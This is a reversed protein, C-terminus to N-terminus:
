GICALFEFDVLTINSYDAVVGEFLVDLNLNNKMGILKTSRNLLAFDLTFYRDQSCLGIM